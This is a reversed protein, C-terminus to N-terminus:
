RAASLRTVEARVARQLAPLDAARTSIEGVFALSATTRVYVLDIDVGRGGSALRGAVAVGGDGLHPFSLATLTVTTLKRSSPNTATFSPCRRFVADIDRLIRAAAAADRYRRATTRLFPGARGRSFSARATAATALTGSTRLRDLASFHKACVSDSTSVALGTGQTVADRTYGAPLDGVRVLSTALARDAPSAPPPPTPVAASSASPSPAATPLATPDKVAGSGTCASTLLALLLATGTHKM